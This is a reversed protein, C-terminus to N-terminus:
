AVDKLYRSKYMNFEEESIVKEELLKKLELMSKVSVETNTFNQHTKLEAKVKDKTEVLYTFAYAAIGGFLFLFGIVFAALTFSQVMKTLGVIMLHHQEEPLDILSDRFVAMTQYADIQCLNERVVDLCTSHAYSGYILPALILAFGSAAIILKWFQQTKM